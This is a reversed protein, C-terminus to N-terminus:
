DLTLNFDALTIGLGSGELNNETYKMINEVISQAIKLHTDAKSGDMGNMEDFTVKLTGDVTGAASALFTTVETEEGSEEDVVKTITEAKYNVNYSTGVAPIKVTIYCQLKSGSGYTFTAVGYIVLEENSVDFINSEFLKYQSLTTFQYFAFGGLKEVLMEGNRKLFDSYVIVPYDVHKLGCVKCVGVEYQHDGLATEVIVSDGCVTCTLRIQGKDQCTAPVVVETIDHHGLRVTMIGALAKMTNTVDRANITEDLNVDAAAVDFYQTIEFGALRKMMLIVDRANLVSDSNVDGYLVTGEVTIKSDVCVTELNDLGVDFVDGEEIIFPLDFVDGNKKNEPLSLTLAALELEGELPASLNSFYFVIDGNENTSITPAIEDSRPSAGALTFGEPLGIKFRIGSVPTETKMALRITVTKTREAVVASTLSFECKADARSIPAAIFALIVCLLACFARLLQKKMISTGKRAIGM